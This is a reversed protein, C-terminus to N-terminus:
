TVRSAVLSANVVRVFLEIGISDLKEQLRSAEHVETAEALTVLLLKKYARDRLRACAFRTVM